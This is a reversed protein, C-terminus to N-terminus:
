NLTTEAGWSDVATTFKIERLSLDINFTYIISANMTWPTSGNLTTEATEDISAGNDTCYSYNITVKNDTTFSQPLMLMVGDNTKSIIQDALGGTLVSSTADLTPSFDKTTNKMAWTNSTATEAITLTGADKIKSFTISNITVKTDSNCIAKAKILIKTLMHHFELPVTGDTVGSFVQDKAFNSVMFDIQDKTDQQVTFDFSGLGTDTNSVFKSAIGTGGTPYYAYFSLKIDEDKPWYRVPSYTYNTSTRTVPIGYMFAPSAGTNWNGTSMYGYVTFSKDIPFETGTIFSANAKSQPRGSYAGFGIINTESNDESVSNKTCSSLILVATTFIYFFKKMNYIM